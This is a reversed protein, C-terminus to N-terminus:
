GEPHRSPAGSREEAERARRLRRVQRIQWVCFGIAAASFLIEILLLAM